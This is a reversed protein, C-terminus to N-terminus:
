SMSVTTLIIQVELPQKLTKLYAAESDNSIFFISYYILKPLGARKFHSALEGSSKYNLLVISHTNHHQPIHWCQLAINTCM